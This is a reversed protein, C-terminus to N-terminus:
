PTVFEAQNGFLIIVVKPRQQGSSDVDTLFADDRTGTAGKKSLWGVKVVMMSGTTDCDWQYLGASDKPNEDHCTVVRANPLAAFVRQSWEWLSRTVLQQPNCANAKCDPTPASAGQYYPKSSNTTDDTDFIFWNDADSATTTSNMSAPILQMLDGLEKAFTTANSANLTHQGSRLSSLLLAGSGLMSLAFVVLAVLVEILSM